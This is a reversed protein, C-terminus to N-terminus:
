SDGEGYEDAWADTIQAPGGDSDMIWLEAIRDPFQAMPLSTRLKPLFNDAWIGNASNAVEVAGRFLGRQTAKSVATSIALVDQESLSDWAMVRSRLEDMTAEMIQVIYGTYDEDPM